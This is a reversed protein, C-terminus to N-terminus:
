GETILAYVTDELVRGAATTIRCGIPLKDGVQAGDVKVWVEVTSGNVVPPKHEVLGTGYIAQVSSITDNMLTLYSAWLFPYDKIEHMDHGIVARGKDDIEYTETTM